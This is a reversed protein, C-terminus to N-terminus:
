FPLVTHDKGEPHSLAGSLEPKFFGDKEGSGQPLMAGPSGAAWVVHSSMKAAGVRGNLSTTRM